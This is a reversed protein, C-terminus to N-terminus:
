GVKRAEIEGFMKEELDIELRQREFLDL